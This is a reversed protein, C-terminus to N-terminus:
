KGRESHVVSAVLNQIGTRFAAGGPGVILWVAVFVLTVAGLIRLGTANRSRRSGRATHWAEEWSLTGVVPLGFAEEVEQPSLLIGRMAALAYAAAMGSLLAAITGAALFLPRNPGSPATPVTPRNTIRYKAGINANYVDQSVSAAERKALLERYNDRLIEDNRKLEALEEAAEQTKASRASIRKRGYYRAEAEALRRRAEVVSAGGASGSAAGQGAMLAELQRKTAVVDPYEDTYQLRLAALKDRLANIEGTRPSPGGASSMALSYAARASALEEAAGPPPTFGSDGDSDASDSRGRGFAMIKEQSEKLKAEYTKIQADLFNRAGTLENQSQLATTAILRDLLLKVVDRAQRPDNSLCHIEIFGDGQDPYIKIRGRLENVAAILAPRGLEVARPNIKEIVAILNQDNLLTREVMYTSGYNDGVLSVGRAAEALPTQKNNYIQAWAEYVNPLRSVYIAASFFVVSAVVIALWRYTWVRAAATYIQNWVSQM